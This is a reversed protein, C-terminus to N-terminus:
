TSGRATASARCPWKPPAASRAPSIPPPVTWAPLGACRGPWGASSALRELVDATFFLGLATGIVWQGASRAAPLSAVPLGRASAIACAFLPGILWPLPTHLWACLAGAAGGIALALLVPRLSVSSLPIVSVQNGGGDARWYLHGM